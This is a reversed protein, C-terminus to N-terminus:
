TKTMLKNFEKIYPYYRNKLIYFQDFSNYKYLIDSNKYKPIVMLIKNLRLILHLLLGFLSITKIRKRIQHKMFENIKEATRKSNLGDINDAKNIILKKRIMLKKDFAKIHNFSYYEDIMRQLQNYNKVVANGMQDDQRYFRTPEPRLINIVIKNMSYAEFTISSRYVLVLDCISILQALPIEEKLILINQYKWDKDIEMYLNKEGPHIKLIFLIEPNKNIIKELINKVKRMDEKHFEIYDKTYGLTEMEKKDFFKGFNFGAYMIIKNFKNKKYKKLIRKRDEFKYIIYRDLGLNGSVDFIEKYQPLYDKTMQLFYNSWVFMKHWNIKKTMNNGWIFSDMEEKRFLGESTLSIVKVGHNYAYNAARVNFSSGAINNLLLARPRHKDILYESDFMSGYKITYGFINELYWVLCIMAEADRGIPSFQLCLIDIM